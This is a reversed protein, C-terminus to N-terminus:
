SRQNVACLEQVLRGWCVERGEAGGRATETGAVRAEESNKLCTLYIGAGPGKSKSHGTGPDGERWIAGYSGEGSGRPSESEREGLAM